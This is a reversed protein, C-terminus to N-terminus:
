ESGGLGKQFVDMESIKVDARERVDDIGAEEKTKSLCLTRIGISKTGNEKGEGEATQFTM